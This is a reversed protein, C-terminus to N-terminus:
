PRVMTMQFTAQGGKVPNHLSIVVTVRRVGAVPVDQEIQWRRDFVVMDSTPAPPTGPLTQSSATGNPSHKIITYQPSGGADTGTTTEVIDGGASAAAGASVQIQDFYEDVGAKTLDVSGGATVHADSAPYTNLDELKESALLAETSMYRSQNSALAMQALLAAAALLGFALIFVAVLVEVLTFGQQRRQRRRLRSQEM